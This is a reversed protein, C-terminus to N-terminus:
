FNGFREAVPIDFSYLLIYNQSVLNCAVINYIAYLRSIPVTILICRFYDNNHM